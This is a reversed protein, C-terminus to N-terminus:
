SSRIRQLIPLPEDLEDARSSRGFRDSAPELRRRLANPVPDPLGIAFRTTRLSPSVVPYHGTM